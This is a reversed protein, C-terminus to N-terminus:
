FIVMLEIEYINGYIVIFYLVNGRLRWDYVGFKVLLFFYYMDLVFIYKVYWDM